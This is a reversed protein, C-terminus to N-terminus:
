STSTSKTPPHITGNVTLSTGLVPVLQLTPITIAASLSGISVTTYGIGNWYQITGSSVTATPANTGPGAEAKVQDAFAAVKVYQSFGSPNFGGLGVVGIDSATRSLFAR